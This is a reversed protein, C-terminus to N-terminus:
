LQQVLEQQAWYQLQLVLILKIPRERDLRELQERDKQGLKSM